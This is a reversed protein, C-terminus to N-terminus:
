KREMIVGEFLSFARKKGWEAACLVMVIFFFGAEKDGRGEGKKPQEQLICHVEKGTLIILIKLLNKNNHQTSSSPAIYM